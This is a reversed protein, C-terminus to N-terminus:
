GWAELFEGFSSGNLHGRGPFRARAIVTACVTATRKADQVPVIRVVRRQKLCESAVSDVQYVGVAVQDEKGRRGLQQNHFVAAPLPDAVGAELPPAGLGSVM